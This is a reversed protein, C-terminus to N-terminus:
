PIGTAPYESSFAPRSYESLNERWIRVYERDLEAATIPPFDCMISPACAIFLKCGKLMETSKSKIKPLDSEKAEERVNVRAISTLEHSFDALSKGVIYISLRLVHM